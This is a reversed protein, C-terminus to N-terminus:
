PMVQSQLKFKLEYSARWELGCRTNSSIGPCANITIILANDARKQVALRHRIELRLIINVLSSISVGLKCIRPREEALGHDISIAERVLGLNTPVVPVIQSHQGINGLEELLEVLSELISFFFSGV